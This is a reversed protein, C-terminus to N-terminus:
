LFRPEVRKREREKQIQRDREAQGMGRYTTENKKESGIDAENDGNGKNKAGIECQKTCRM